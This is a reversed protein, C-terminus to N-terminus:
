GGTSSSSREPQDEWATAEPPPVPNLTAPDPEPSTRDGTDEPAPVEAEAPQPSTATATPEPKPEPEAVPRDPQRPPRPRRPMPEPEDEAYIEDFAEVEEDLEEEYDEEYEDEYLEDEDEFSRPLAGRVEGSQRSKWPPTAISFREFISEQETLLRSETGEAVIIRREGVSLVEDAQMRYTSDIVGPLLPIGTRSLILESILGSASNFLFDKVKGLVLGTETTLVQSGTIKALGTLDLDDFVEDSNVLLADRGLTTIQSLELTLFASSFAQRSVEFVLVQMQEPDVWIQNVVGLRSANAQNIVQTGLISSRLYIEPKVLAVSKSATTM